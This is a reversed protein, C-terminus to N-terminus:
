ASPRQVLAAQVLKKPAIATYSEFVWAEIQSPEPPAQFRFSVWGSKGLGYGTPEAEPRELAAMGTHPLKVGLGLPWDEATGVFVFIKPKSGVNVKIVTEGWPRAEFAGPLSLAFARAHSSADRPNM